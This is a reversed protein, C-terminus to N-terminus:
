TKFGLEKSKDVVLFDQDLQDAMNEGCRVPTFPIMLVPFFGGQGEGDALSYKTVPM